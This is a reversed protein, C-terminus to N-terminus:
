RRARHKDRMYDAVAQDIEEISASRKPRGLLGAMEAVTRHRAKRVMVTGDDRIEWSLKDGAHVHLRERVELPITTQGKSTVISVSM